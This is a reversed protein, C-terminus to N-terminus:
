IQETLQGIRLALLCLTIRTAQLVAEESDENNRSDDALRKQRPTDRTSAPVPATQITM